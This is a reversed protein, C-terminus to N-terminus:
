LCNSLSENIKKFFAISNYRPLFSLNDFILHDCVHDGNDNTGNDNKNYDDNNWSRNKVKDNNQLLILLDSLDCLLHIM